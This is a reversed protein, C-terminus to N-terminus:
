ATPRKLANEYLRLHWSDKLAKEFGGDFLAGVADIMTDFVMTELDIKEQQIAERFELRSVGEVIGQPNRFFIRGSDMMSCNMEKELFLIVGKMADIGCGSIGAEDPEKVVVLFRNHLVQWKAMVPHGHSQWQSLFASLPQALRPDDQAIPISGGFLWCRAEGLRPDQGVAAKLDTPNVGTKSLSYTPDQMTNGESFASGFRSIPGLSIAMIFYCCGFVKNQGLVM